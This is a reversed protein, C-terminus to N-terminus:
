DDTVEPHFNEQETLPVSIAVRTGEGPASHITLQGGIKEARERMSILGLGAKGQVDAPDFGQGNDTVELTVSDEAFRVSLTVQSAGAHKLANNLAEQAIRYLEEE